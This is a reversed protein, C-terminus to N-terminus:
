VPQTKFSIGPFDLELFHKLDRLSTEYSKGNPAVVRFATHSREKRVEIEVETADPFVAIQKTKRPGRVARPKFGLLTNLDREIQMM